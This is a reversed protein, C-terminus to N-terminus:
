GIPTVVTNNHWIRHKFRFARSLRRRLFETNLTRGDIILLVSQPLKKEIDLIDVAIQRDKTFSPGDLYIMDPVVDPIQSHRFCPIGEYEIEVTPIHLVECVDNLLPPIISKTVDAWYRQDDISYLYGKENPCELNNDHLAKALVVTSGGSGFELVVRPKKRRVTQYLFWFDSFDPPYGNPPRNDLFDLNVRKSLRYRHWRQLHPAVLPRTRYALTLRPHSCFSILRNVLKFM